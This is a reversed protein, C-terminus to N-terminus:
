PFRIEQEFQPTTFILSNQRSRNCQRIWSLAMRDMKKNEHLKRSFFALYYTSLGVKPTLARGRGGVSIRSGGINFRVQVRTQRPSRSKSRQRPSARQTIPPTPSSQAAPDVMQTQNPSAPHTRTAPTDTHATTNTTSDCEVEVVGSGPQRIQPGVGNLGNAAM